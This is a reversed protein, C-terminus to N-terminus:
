VNFVFHSLIIQVLTKMIYIIMCYLLDKEQILTTIVLQLNKKERECESHKVNM